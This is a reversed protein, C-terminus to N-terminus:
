YFNEFYCVKLCYLGLDETQSVFSLVLNVDRLVCPQAAWYPTNHRTAGSGFYSMRAVHLGPMKHLLQALAWNHAVALNGLMKGESFKSCLVRLNRFSCIAELWFVNSRGEFEIDLEQLDPLHLALLELDEAFNLLRAFITINKKVTVL